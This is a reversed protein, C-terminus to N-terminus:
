EDRGYAADRARRLNRIVANLQARNLDVYMGTAEVVEADDKPLPKAITALQVAGFRNSDAAEPTWGVVVQSDEAQAHVIEKPM